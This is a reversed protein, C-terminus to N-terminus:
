RTTPLAALELPLPGISLPRESGLELAVLPVVPRSRVKSFVQESPGPLAGAGPSRRIRAHAPKTQALAGTGRLGPSREAFVPLPDVLMSAAFAGGAGAGSVKYGSLCQFSM